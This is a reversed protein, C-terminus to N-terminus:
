MAVQGGSHCKQGLGMARIRKLFDDVVPKRQLSNVLRKIRGHCTFRRADGNPRLASAGNYTSMDHMADPPGTKATFPRSLGLGCNSPCRRAGLWQSCPHSSRGSPQLAGRQKGMPPSIIFALKCGSLQDNTFAPTHNVSCFSHLDILAADVMLLLRDGIGRTGKRHAVSGGAM